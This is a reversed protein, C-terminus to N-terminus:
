LTPDVVDPLDAVADHQLRDLAARLDVDEVLGMLQGLGGPVREQLQDLLRRRVQQEDEARGVEGLHERGHAGTALREHELPRPQGLSTRL